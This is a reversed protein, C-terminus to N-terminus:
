QAQSRFITSFFGELDLPDDLKVQGRDNLNDELRKNWKPDVMNRLAGYMYNELAARTYFTKIFPTWENVFKVADKPVQELEGDIGVGAKTVRQLIGLVDDALNFGPGLVVDATGRFPDAYDQFMVDGVFSAGGGKLLLRLWVGPETMPLASEGKLYNAANQSLYQLFMMYAGMTALRAAGGQGIEKLDRTFVRNWYTMPFAKFMFAHKLFTYTISGKPFKYKWKGERIGPTLVATDMQEQMFGAFKNAIRDRERNIASQTGAKKGRAELAKIFVADDLNKISDMTVFNRGEKDVRAQRIIEWDGATWGQKKLDSHIGRANKALDDFSMESYTGFRRSLAIIFGERLFKNHYTMGTVKQFASTIQAQRMSMGMDSPDYMRSMAMAISETDGFIEKLVTKEAESKPAAVGWAELFAETAKGDMRSFQNQVLTHDSFSAPLTSGLLSIQIYTTIFDDIKSLTLWQVELLNGEFARLNTEFDSALKKLKGEINAFNSKQLRKQMYPLIMGSFVERYNPGFAEMLAIHSADSDLESMWNDLITGAKQKKFYAYEEEASKFNFIRHHMPDNKVSRSAFSIGDAAFKPAKQAGHIGTIIGKVGQRIAGEVDTIGRQRFREHDLKEMFFKTAWDELKKMDEKTSVWRAGIRRKYRIDEGAERAMEVLGEVSHRQRAVRSELMMKYGGMRNYMKTKELDVAKWAAAVFKALPDSSEGRFAKFVELEFYEDGKKLLRLASSGTSDKFDKLTNLLRTQFTAGLGKRRSDLGEHILYDANRLMEEDTLDEWGRIHEAGRDASLNSQFKKYEKKLEPTNMPSYGANDVTDNNIHAKFFAMREDMAIKNKREIEKADPAPADDVTSFLLKSREPAPLQIDTNEVVDTFEEAYLDSINEPTTSDKFKVANSGTSETHTKRATGFMKFPDQTIETIVKITEPSVKPPLNPDDIGRILDSRTIIWTAFSDAFYESSWKGKDYHEGVFSSTRDKRDILSKEAHPVWESDWVNKTALRARASSLYRNEVFHGLEHMASHLRTLGPPTAPNIHIQFGFGKKEIYAAASEPANKAWQSPTDLKFGLGGRSFVGTLDPLLEHLTDLIRVGPIGEIVGDLFAINESMIDGVEEKTPGIEFSLSQTEIKDTGSKFDFTTVDKEQSGGILQSGARKVSVENSLENSIISRIEDASRLEAVDSSKQLPQFHVFIFETGKLTRDPKLKINIRESPTLKNQIKSIISNINLGLVTDLNLTFSRRSGDPLVWGKKVSDGILKEREVEDDIDRFLSKKDGLGFGDSIEVKAGKESSVLSAKVRETTRGTVSLEDIGKTLEAIITRNLDDKFLHIEGRSTKVVDIPKSSDFDSPLISTYPSIRGSEPDIGTFAMITDGDLGANRLHIALDPSGVSIKNAKPEDRVAIETEEVTSFRLKKRKPKKGTLRERLKRSREAFIDVVDPNKTTRLEGDPRAYTVSVADGQKNTNVSQIDFTEDGIKLTGDGITVQARPPAVADIGLSSAKTENIIGDLPIEIERKDNVLTVTGEREQVVRYSEGQFLVDRGVVENMTANVNGENRKLFEETQKRQRAEITDTIRIGSEPEPTISVGRSIEEVPEGGEIKRQIFADSRLGSFPDEVKINSVNEQPEIKFATETVEKEPAKGTDVPEEETEVRGFDTRYKGDKELQNFVKILSRGIAADQAISYRKGFFKQGIHQIAQRVISLSGFDMVGGVGSIDGRIMKALFEEAGEDADDIGFREMFSQLEKSHRLRVDSLLKEFIEDGLVKRMGYHGMTEEMIVRIGRHVRAAPSEGVIRDTLIYVKGTSPDFFADKGEPVQGRLNSPLDNADRVMVLNGDDSLQKLGPMQTTLSARLDGNALAHFKLNADEEATIKQEELRKAEAAKEEPTAEPEEEAKPAEPEEERVGTEEEFDKNQKQYNATAESESNFVTDKNSAENNFNDEEQRATNAEVEAESMKTYNQSSELDTFLSIATQDSRNIPDKVRKLSRIFPSIIVGAGTQFGVNMLAESALMRDGSFQASYYNLAEAGAGSIFADTAVSGLGSKRTTHLAGFLKKTAAAFPVFNIAMGPIDALGSTLGVGFSNIMNIGDGATVRAQAERLFEKERFNLNRMAAIREHVPENYPTAAPYKENAEDPDLLRGRSDEPYREIFPSFLKMHFPVEAGMRVLEIDKAFGSRVPSDFFPLTDVGTLLMESHNLRASVARTTEASFEVEEPRLTQGLPQFKFAKNVKKSSFM